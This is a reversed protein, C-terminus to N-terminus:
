VTREIIVTNMAPNERHIICDLMAETAASTGAPVTVHLVWAFRSTDLYLADTCRSSVSFPKLRQVRVNTYGLATAINKYRAIRTGGLDALKAVIAARRELNTLAGVTCADPLGLSAEWEDLLSTTRRPDAEALLGQADDEVKALYAAIKGLYQTLDADPDTPWALGPPLLKQLLNLYRENLTAM